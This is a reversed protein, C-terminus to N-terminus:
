TTFPSQGDAWGEYERRVDARRFWYLLFIPYALVVALAIPLSIATATEWQGPVLATLHEAGAVMRGIVLVSETLVWVIALWAWWTTLEVGSRLHSKIRLSGIIVLAGLVLGILASLVTWGPPPLLALTLEAIEPAFWRELTAPNFYFLTTLDGLQDLVMLAGTVLGINGIVNPWRAPKAGAAVAPAELQSM